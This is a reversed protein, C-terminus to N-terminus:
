PSESEQHDCPKYWVKTKEPIGPSIMRRMLCLSNWGQQTLNLTNSIVSELTSIHWNPWGGSTVSLMRAPMILAMSFSSKNCGENQLGTHTDKEKSSLIMYQAWKKVYLAWFVNLQTSLILDINEDIFKYNIQKLILFYNLELEDRPSYLFPPQPKLAFTQM